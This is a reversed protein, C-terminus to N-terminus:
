DEIVPASVTNKSTLVAKVDGDQGHQPHYKGVPMATLATNHVQYAVPVYDTMATSVATAIIDALISGSNGTTDVVVQEDYGWLTEGTNTSVLRYDIAVTVNAAIVVYNKEWERITLFLVADAGFNDRFVSTPIQMVQEGVIVGERQFIDQVLPMPLVYYGHDSFPQTITVNLLDGADAATTLNIAPVVVISGPQADTYMGPFADRRTQTEACGVLFIVLAFAIGHRM